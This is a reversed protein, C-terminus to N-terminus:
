PELVDLFSDAIRGIDFFKEAYDRGAHGMAAGREPEDLVRAVAEVFGRHDGPTAVLGAGAEEITRSALNESPIAGVIPRGAALYTLVKSPVSFTGADPELLVLLVDATGLMDAVADWAVYDILVLNELGLETRRAELYDRGLGETAVVVAAGTAELQRALAVLHEPDHKHGLTGAYLAVTRGALGNARSWPNDKPRLPVEPLPTWNRIVTSDTDVRRRDLEAVFAETIAIVHDSRRLLTTELHEWGAGLTAGLLRSRNGLVARTGRGLFDQLWYIRKADVSKAASWLLAQATLPCNASIVADPRQARVQVALRRGYAIESKLRGVMAYREFPASSIDVFRLNPPDTPQSEVAGRGTAVGGCYGQVVEHGRAALTRCLQPAYPHGAFDHIFLRM